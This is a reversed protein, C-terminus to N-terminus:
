WVYKLPVKTASIPHAVMAGDTAGRPIECSDCKYGRRLWAHNDGFVDCTEIIVILHSPESSVM